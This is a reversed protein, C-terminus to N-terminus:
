EGSKVSYSESCSPHFFVGGMGLALIVGASSYTPPQLFNSTLWSQSMGTGKQKMALGAAVGNHFEPWLTFDASGGGDPLVFVFSM